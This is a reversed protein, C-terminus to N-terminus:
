VRAGCIRTCCRPASCTPAAGVVAAAPAALGLRWAVAGILAASLGAQLAGAGFAMRRLAWVKEFSLELGLLFLLFLVGLEAFPAAAAPEGITVLGLVPWREAWAGLGSPGLVVGSVIFGLVASLGARRLLPVLVGAAFLFVLTDKILAVQGEHGM